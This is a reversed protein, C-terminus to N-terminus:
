TTGHTHCYVNQDIPDRNRNQSYCPTNRTMTQMSVAIEEVKMTLKENNETLKKEAEVLAYLIDRDNTEALALNQLSEKVTLGDQVAANAFFNSQGAPTRQQEKQDFYEEIFLAKFNPWLNEPTSKRRWEKCADIYIGSAHVEHYATQLIQNNDIPVGGDHAYRVCDDIRKFFIDIPQSADYAEMMRKLNEELDAESIRGYRDLLHKCMQRATVGM